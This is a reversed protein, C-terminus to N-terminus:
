AIKGGETGSSAALWNLWLETTMAFCELVLGEPELEHPLTSM